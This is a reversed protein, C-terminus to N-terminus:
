IVRTTVPSSRRSLFFGLVCALLLEVLYIVQSIRLQGLYLTPDGRGFELAFYAISNAALYYSFVTGPRRPRLRSLGIALLASLLAGVAQVPIRPLVVGYIDPLEWAWGSYTPMGYAVGQLLAATWALAQVAPAAGAAADALPWFRTHRLSAYALLGLISGLLIGHFALPRGLEWIASPEASYDAWNFAVHAARGVILGVALAALSANVMRGPAIGSRSGRYAALLVGLLVGADILLTYVRLAWPGIHLVTLM